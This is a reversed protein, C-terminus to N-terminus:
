VAWIGAQNLWNAAKSSRVPSLISVFFIELEGRVFDEALSDVVGYGSLRRGSKSFHELPGSRVNVTM